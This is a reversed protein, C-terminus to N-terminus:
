GVCAIQSPDTTYLLCPLQDSDYAPTLTFPTFISKDHERGLQECQEPFVPLDVFRAGIEKDFVPRSIGDRAIPYSPNTVFRGHSGSEGFRNGWVRQTVAECSM